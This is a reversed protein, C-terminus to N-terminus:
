ANQVEKSMELLTRLDHKHALMHAWPDGYKELRTPVTAINFDTPYISELEDWSIPMSVPAQPSPRLSYPAALTKGRSNQNHDFFIKGKRKEVTWDMTVRDPLFSMLFQGVTACFKRIVDYDYQRVVPVYIHLGTKGSTKLFPTLSLDDLISKLALALRRVSDFAKRNLEPEDGPREKGSYIYPDLDFIMFDPYNLTSSDIAEDSGTFQTSLHTADPEPNVRSLWPHLEIDALQALWVLTPLNQAMIYEQDTKLHGSYLDVTSVFEPLSSDWHKQYFSPANIGNPYRTLNMPREYLHPLIYSSVATYYRILDRKTLAPRKGVAPWLEKNLNTLKIKHGGVDVTLGDRPNELQQLVSATVDGEAHVAAAAISSSVDEAQERTVNKPDVDERLGVYVPARLYGENTWSNFRVQVVLEPRVWHPKGKEKPVADYLASEDTANGDLKKRLMKLENDTFGSGVTGAYRLVDGEYYGLVLAGFTDSRHGQGALWGCVLFDQELIGKIKLWSKSRVGPEYLSDRHKAVVGELGLALAADYLKEGDEPISDLVQVTETNNVIDRLKRRRQEFGLGTLDMGDAYLVDFVYYLVPIRGQMDKAKGNGIFLRHQLLQFEPIGKDNLAVLEGDLVLDGRNLEALASTVEPYQASMDGGRRSRLVVKRDRIYSVARVGDLKPEFSWAPHSFPKSVPTAVMPEISKPFAAPKAGGLAGRPSPETLQTGRSVDEITRYSIVSAEDTVEIGAYEDKHKILLWQESGDKETRRTRVLTWSGRLKSGRLQISIKGQEIERRMRDASEEPDGFSLKNGEDPSYTGYDWVIVPGAGYNREPIVGEFTAYDLPHDEVRM